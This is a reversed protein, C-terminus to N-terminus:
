ISYNNPNEIVDRVLEGKDIWNMPNHTTELNGYGNFRIYDHSFNVDGFATARAAEYPKDSFFTEFFYDDFDYIEDEIRNDQCYQNHISVWESDDLNELKLAIELQEFFDESIHSESISDKMGDPICQYDQFMFEPYDEDKHIEACLEYLEEKSSILTLDIWKGFISGNNYKAYTGCYLAPQDTIEANLAAHTPTNSTTM